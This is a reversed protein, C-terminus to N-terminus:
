IGMFWSEVVIYHLARCHVIKRLIKKYMFLSIAKIHYVCKIARPYGSMLFM